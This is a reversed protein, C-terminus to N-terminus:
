FWREIVVKRDTYFEIADMGHAKTTGFFSAKSGGFPFFAMPAAVGINVGLMSAPAHYRFTRASKGSATFISTANALPHARLLALASELDPVPVMCLVPGFIEEQAIAAQPDVRDFLTAGLFHGAPPMEARRGDVVLDAGEAAGREIYGVVRDRHAASILPGMEVGPTLGNGVRLGRARAILRERLPAHASGVPVVVSGALCREGASGFASESVAEAARDMDADPMVVVFNKAGGLAQVRKGREAARRYIYQAVPSSGVFSVGRVDPHDLLADVAARAGHV